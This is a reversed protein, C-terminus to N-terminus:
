PCTAEEVLENSFFDATAFLDRRSNKLLRFNPLRTLDFDGSAVGGVLRSPVPAAFDTFAGPAEVDSRRGFVVLDM